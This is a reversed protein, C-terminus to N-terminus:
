ASYKILGIFEERSRMHLSIVNKAERMRFVELELSMLEKAKNYM